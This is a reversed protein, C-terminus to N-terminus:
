IDNKGVFHSWSRALPELFPCPIGGCLAKQPVGEVRIGLSRVRSMLGDVGGGGGRAGQASEVEVSGRGGGRTSSSGRKRKKKEPALRASRPPPTPAATGVARWGLGYFKVGGSGEVSL